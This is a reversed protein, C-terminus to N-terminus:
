AIPRSCEVAHLTYLGVTTPIWVVRGGREEEGEEEAAAAAAAGTAGAGAGAAAAAGGAARRLANRGVGAAVTQLHALDGSHLPVLQFKFGFKSVM